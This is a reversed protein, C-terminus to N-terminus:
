LYLAILLDNFLDLKSLLPAASEIIEAKNAATNQVSPTSKKQGIKGISLETKLQM